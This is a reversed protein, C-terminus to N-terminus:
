LIIGFNPHNPYYDTVTKAGKRLKLCYCPIEEILKGM